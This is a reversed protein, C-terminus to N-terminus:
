SGLSDISLSFFIILLGCCASFVMDFRRSRVALIGLVQSDCSARVAALWMLAIGLTFTARRWHETLSFLGSLVVLIVFLVVFAYQALQPIKSPPLGKDHPNM